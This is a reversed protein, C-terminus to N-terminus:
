NYNINLKKATELFRELNRDHDEQTKGCITVDDLYVYTGALNEKKIFTDMIRQFCPVGNTVGFPVRTFQYLRGCAEFATYHKEEPKLPVQHYASKLAITSFM